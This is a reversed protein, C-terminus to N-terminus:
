TIGGLLVLATACYLSCLAFVLVLAIGVVLMIKRNKRRLLCVIGGSLSAVAMVAAMWLEM